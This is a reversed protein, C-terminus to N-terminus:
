GGHFEEDVGGVHGFDGVKGGGAQEIADGGVGAQDRFRAALEELHHLFDAPDDVAGDGGFDDRHVDVAHEALGVDHALEGGIDAHLEGEGEVAELGAAAEGAFAGLDVDRKAERGVLGKEGGLGAGGEDAGKDAAVVIDAEIAHVQDLVDAEDVVIIIKGSFDEDGADAVRDVDQLRGLDACVDDGGGRRDELVEGFVGECVAAEFM